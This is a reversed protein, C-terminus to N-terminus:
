LLNRYIALIDNRVQVLTRTPSPIAGYLGQVVARILEESARGSSLDAKIAAVTAPDQPDLTTLLTQGQTRQAPTVEDAYVVSWQARDTDPTGVRVSVVPIGADQFAQRLVLIVPVTM